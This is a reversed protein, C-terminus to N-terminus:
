TRRLNISNNEISTLKNTMYEFYGTLKTLNTKREGVDMGLDICFDNITTKNSFV